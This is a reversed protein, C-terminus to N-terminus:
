GLGTISRSVTLCFDSSRWELFPGSRYIQAAQFYTHLDLCVCSHPFQKIKRIANTQRQSIGFKSPFPGLLM